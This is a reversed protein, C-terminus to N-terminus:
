PERSLATQMESRGRVTSYGTFIQTSLTYFSPTMVLNRKGERREEGRKEERRV